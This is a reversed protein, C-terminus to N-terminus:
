LEAAPGQLALLDAVVVQLDALTAAGKINNAKWSTVRVNDKVYGRNPDIRDLSPSNDSGGRLGSTGIVLPIGFVPCHTPVQIDEPLLDFYVNRKKARQRALGWLYKAPNEKRWSQSAKTQSAKLRARQIQVLSLDSLEPLARLAANPYRLKVLHPYKAVAEEVRARITGV